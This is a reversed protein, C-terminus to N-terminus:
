NRGAGRRSVLWATLGACLGLGALVAIMGWPTPARAAAAGDPGFLPTVAMILLGLCLWATITLAWYMWQFVYDAQRRIASESGAPRGWAAIMAARLGRRAMRRQGAEVTHGHPLPGEIRQGARDAGHMVTNGRAETGAQSAPVAQQALPNTGANAAQPNGPLAPIAPTTAAQTSAAAHSAAPNAPVSSAQQLAARDAVIAGDARAPLAM